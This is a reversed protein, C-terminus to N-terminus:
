DRSICEDLTKGEKNKWMTWGNASARVVITAATSPKTFTYDKLFVGNEDIVKSDKLENLLKESPFSKTSNPATRSGKIVTRGDQSYIAKADANRNTIFYLNDSKRMENESMKPIFLPFGLFTLLDSISNYMDMLDAERTEHVFSKTPTNQNLTYRDAELAKQYCYNELHKIDAKTLQNEEGTTTFVIATKWNEKNKHHRRLRESINESEGIYASKGKDDYFSGDEEFLFYIGNYKLENRNEIALELEFRPIYIAQITRTPIQSIKYGRTDGSPFYTQITFPRKKM